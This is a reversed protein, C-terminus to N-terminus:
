ETPNQVSSALGMLDQWNQWDQYGPMSHGWQAPLGMLWRSHEPNLQGGSVTEATSGSPTIGYVLRGLTDDKRVMSTSLDGTDKHDRTTPTPWGTAHVENRLRAGPTFREKKFKEWQDYSGVRSADEVTTTQWGSRETESTRLGSARLRSRSRQSGTDWPKWTMKYLNSGLTSTVQRLRSELSLQLSASHSSTSGLPGSTGSTLLGMEKAQRASLNAPALAQGFERMTLGGLMESHSPGSALEQSSIASHTAESTM